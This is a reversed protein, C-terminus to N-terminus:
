FYGSGNCTVSFHSAMEVRTCCPQAPPQAPPARSRRRSRAAAPPARPRPPSPPPSRPPSPAAALAATALTAAALAAALATAVATLTTTTGLTNLWPRFRASYDQKSLKAVHSATPAIVYAARYLDGLPVFTGKAKILLDACAILQELHKLDCYNWYKDNIKRKWHCSGVYGPARQAERRMCYEYQEVTFGLRRRVEVLDTLQQPLVYERSARVSTSLPAAIASPAAPPPPPLPESSPLPPPARPPPPSPEPAAPKPPPVPPTPELQPPSPSSCWALYVDHMLTLVTLVAADPVAADRLIAAIQLLM